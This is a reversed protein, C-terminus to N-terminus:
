RNVEIGFVAGQVLIDQRNHAQEIGMISSTSLSYDIMNSSRAIGDLWLASWGFKLSVARTVQYKLDVRLEIGPSWEDINAGHTFSTPQMTLPIFPVTLPVVIPASPGLEGPWPDALHSGLTGHQDINQRNFGAFFKGDSTLSWRGSKIAYHVGLQPAVIHNEASTFWNSDALINGPGIPNGDIDVLFRPDANGTTTTTGSTDPFEGRADVNFSDDFEM